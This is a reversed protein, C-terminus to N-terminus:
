AEGQTEARERVPEQTTDEDDEDAMGLRERALRRATAVLEPEPLLRCTPCLDQYRWPDETVFAIAPTM